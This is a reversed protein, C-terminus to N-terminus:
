MLQQDCRDIGDADNLATSGRNLLYQRGPGGRSAMSPPSIGSARISRCARSASAARGRAAPGCSRGWARDNLGGPPSRRSWGAMIWAPRIRGAGTAAFGSMIDRTGAPPCGGNPLPPRPRDPASQPQAHRAAADLVPVGIHGNDVSGRSVVQDMSGAVPQDGRRAEGVDGQRCAEVVGQAPEASGIRDIAAAAVVHDVATVAVVAQDPAGPRVRQEAAGADVDDAIAAGTTHSDIEGGAVAKMAVGLTVHEVADLIDVAGAEAVDQGTGRRGVRQGAEAAVVHEM